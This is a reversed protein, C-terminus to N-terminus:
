AARRSSPGAAFIARRAVASNACARAFAAVREDDSAGRDTRASPADVALPALEIKEWIGMDPGITDDIRGSRDKTQFRVLTVKGYPPPLDIVLDDGSVSAPYENGEADTATGAGTDVTLVFSEGYVPFGVWVDQAKACTAVALAIVLTRLVRVISDLM